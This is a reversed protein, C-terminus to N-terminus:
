HINALNMLKSLHNLNFILENLHPAEKSHSNDIDKCLLYFYKLNYYSAIKRYMMPTSSQPFVEIIKTHPQCFVINTLGTGHLSLVIDTNSFLTAQERVSLSELHVSQFGM